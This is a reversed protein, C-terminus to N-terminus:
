RKGYVTGARQCFADMLSNAIRDFVPGVTMKLIRNSFEYELDLKVKCAKDNLTEFRWFGELHKFPGDILRIEIMKGPQNRNLTTFTKNVVGRSLEISAKVEYEDRSWVKSSKCWPLFDPYSEIDDVLDFMEQAQYQLLASKNVVTM